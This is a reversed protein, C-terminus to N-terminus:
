CGATEEYRLHRRRLNQDALEFESRDESRVTEAEHLHGRLEQAESAQRSGQPRAELCSKPRAPDLVDHWCAAFLDPQCRAGAQLRGGGAPVSGRRCGLGILTLTQKQPLAASTGSVARLAIRSSLRSEEEAVNDEPVSFPVCVKETWSLHYHALKEQCPWCIGSSKEM